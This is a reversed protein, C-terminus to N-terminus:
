AHPSSLRPDWAPPACLEVVRRQSAFASAINGYNDKIQLLETWCSNKEASDRILNIGAEWDLEVAIHLPTFGDADRMLLVRRPADQLQKM